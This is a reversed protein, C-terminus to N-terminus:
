IIVEIQIQSSHTPMSADVDSGQGATGALLTCVYSGPMVENGAKIITLYGADTQTEINQSVASLSIKDEYNNESDRCEAFSLTIDEEPGWLNNYISVQLISDEGSKVKVTRAEPIMPEDANAHFIIDPATKPFKEDAFNFVNLVFVLALGLIVLAVIMVVTFSVGIELSGKKM